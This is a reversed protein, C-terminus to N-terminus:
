KLTYDPPSVRDRARYLYVLLSEYPCENQWPDTRLRGAVEFMQVLLNRVDNRDDTSLGPVTLLPDIAGRPAFLYGMARVEPDFNEYYYPYTTDDFPIGNDRQYSLQRMVITVRYLDWHWLDEQPDALRAAHFGVLKFNSLDSIDDTAFSTPSIDGHVFGADHWVKLTEIAAIGISLVKEFPVFNDLRLPQGAIEVLAWPTHMRHFEVDPTRRTVMFRITGSPPSVYLVQPGIGLDYAARTFYAERFLSHVGGIEAGPDREFTVQLDPRGQLVYITAFETYRLGPRSTVIRGLGPVFLNRTGARTSWNLGAIDNLVQAAVIEAVSGLTAQVLAALISIRKM